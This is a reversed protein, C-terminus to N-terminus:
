ANNPCCCVILSYLFSYRGDVVTVGYKHLLACSLAADWVKIDTRATIQLHATAYPSEESSSNNNPSSTFLTVPAETSTGQAPSPCALSLRHERSMTPSTANIRLMANKRSNNVGDKTSPSTSSTTKPEAASSEAESSEVAGTKSIGFNGGKARNARAHMASANVINQEEATLSDFKKRNCVYEELASHVLDTFDADLVCTLTTKGGYGESRLTLRGGCLKRMWKLGMQTTLKAAPSLGFGDREHQSQVLEDLNSEDVQEFPIEDHQSANVVSVELTKRQENARLIIETENMRTCDGHALANSWANSLIAVIRFEDVLLELADADAHFNKGCIKEWTSTCTGVRSNLHQPEGRLIEGVRSLQYTQQAATMMIALTQRLQVEFSQLRNYEQRTRDKTRLTNVIELLELLKHHATTNLNKVTHATERAILNKEKEFALGLMQSRNSVDRAVAVMLTSHPTRVIKNVVLECDKTGATELVGQIQFDYSIKDEPNISDDQNRRADWAKRLVIELQSLKDNNTSDKKQAAVVLGFNSLRLHTQGTLGFLSPSARVSIQDDRTESNDPTSRKFYFFDWIWDLFPTHTSELRWELPGRRRRGKDDTNTDFYHSLPSKHNEVVVILVDSSHNWIINLEASLNAFSEDVEQCNDFCMEYLDITIATYVLKSVCDLACDLAFSFNERFQPEVMYKIATPPDNGFFQHIFSNESQINDFSEFYNFGWFVVYNLIILSWIIILLLRLQNATRMLRVFFNNNHGKAGLMQLM